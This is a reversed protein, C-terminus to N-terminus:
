RNKRRRRMVAVSIATKTAVGMFGRGASVATTVSGEASLINSTDRIIDEIERSNRQVIIKTERIVESTEKFVMGLYISFFLIGIGILLIGVQGLDM